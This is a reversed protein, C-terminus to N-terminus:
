RHKMMEKREREQELRIAEEMDQVHYHIEVPNQRAWRADTAAPDVTMAQDLARSIVGDGMGLDRKLQSLNSVAFTIPIEAIGSEKIVKQLVRAFHEATVNAEVQDFIPHSGFVRRGERVAALAIERTKGALDVKEVANLLGKTLVDRMGDVYYSQFSRDIDEYYPRELSELLKQYSEASREAAQERAEAIREEKKAQDQNSENIKAIRENLREASEAERERWSAIKRANSELVPQLIADRHHAELSRGFDQVFPQFEGKAASVVENAARAVAGKQSEMGKAFDQVLAMGSFTTYGKGSFPGKKAPSFPFFDRAAAVVSRAADAVASIMSRIGNIFGQVLARGSSVLMSGVNGLAARARGPLSGIISVANSVLSSVISGVASAASSMISSMTSAAQSFFSSVQGPIQSIFSVVNSVLTGALSSVTAVAGSFISSMTSGLGSFISGIQGPLSSLTSIVGSAFTSAAQGIGTFISGISTGLGSFASTITEGIGSFTTTLNDWIGSGFESISASVEALNTSLSERMASFDFEPFSLGGGAGGVSGTMTERGSLMESLSNRWDSLKESIREKLNDFGTSLEEGARALEDLFPQFGEGLQTGAESIDQTFTEKIESFKSSISEGIEGLRTGLTEKAFELEQLMPQFSERIQTGADSMDSGFGSFFESISDRLQQPWDSRLEFDASNWADSIKQRADHIDHRYQEVFFDLFGTFGEYDAPDPDPLDQIPGLLDGPLNGIMEGLYNSAAEIEPGYQNLTSALGSLATAVGSSLDGALPAISSMFEGVAPAVEAALDGVGSILEQAAPGFEDMISNLHPALRGGVEGLEDLLTDLVGALEGTFNGLTPMAGVISDSLTDILSNFEDSYEPFVEMGSRLISGIGSGLRGVTDLTSEIARELTGDQSMETIAENFSAGFNNLKETLHDFTRSGAAGLELLGDTFNGAFPALDSLMERTNGLIERFNRIGRESTLSNVFGQSFDTMGSVLENLDPTLQRLGEGLQEFQPTLQDRFSGSLLAQAEEIAPNAAEAAEKVGEWGLATAGLAAAAAAGLAPIISLAGGIAGTVPAALSAIATAIWGGPTLGFKRQDREHFRRWFSTGAQKGARDAQRVLSRTNLKADFDVDEGSADKAAKAAEARLKSSNLSTDLKVKQGRTAANVKERFGKTDPSIDVEGDRLSRLEQEVARRFGTTDPAVKLSVAGVVPFGHGEAM